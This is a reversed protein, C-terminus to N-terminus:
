GIQLEGTRTLSVLEEAIDKVPYDIGTRRKIDSAIETYTWGKFTQGNDKANNIRELLEERM